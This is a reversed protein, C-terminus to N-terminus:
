HHLGVFYCLSASYNKLYDILISGLFEQSSLTHCLGHCPTIETKISKKDFSYKLALLVVM